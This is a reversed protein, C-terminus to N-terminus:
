EFTIVNLKRVIFTVVKQESSRRDGSTIEQGSGVYNNNQASRITLNPFRASWKIPSQKCNEQIFLNLLLIVAKEFTQKMKNKM